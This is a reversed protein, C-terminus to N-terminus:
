CSERTRQRCTFTQEVLLAEVPQALSRWCRWEALLFFSRGREPGWM